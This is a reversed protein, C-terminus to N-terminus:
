RHARLRLTAEAIKRRHLRYSNWETDIVQPSVWDQGLVEFNDAGTGRIGFPGLEAIAEQLVQTAYAVDAQKGGKEIESELLAMARLDEVGDRVAEWRRSTVIGDGPYVLLYDHSTKEPYQWPDDPSTCYTWFGFGSLGRMKALWALGRYYELPPRHKALHECEYTWMMKSNNIMVDLRPDDKLLFGNRNPCWVDVLHAMRRIDSMDAREVPDTYMLVNPDAKRAVRAHAIYLDVLGPNLGPEDVPYYAFRDYGMGLTKLYAVLGELCADFAKEYAPTFMGHGEPGQLSGPANFLLFLSDVRDGLFDGLPSFDLDSEITGEENYRATPFYVGPVVIVNNGHALQDRWADEPFDKFLSNHVYGWSCLHPSTGEEIDLDVVEATVTVSVPNSRVAVPEFEIAGQYTGPPSEGAQISVFVQRTEGPALYITRAQNLKSLADDAYDDVETPVSLVELVEIQPGKGDGMRPASNVRVPTSRDELNMLNYALSEVENKYLRLGEAKSSDEKYTEEEIGRIHWWPNTPWVVLPPIRDGEALELIKEGKVLTAEISEMALETKRRLRIAEEERGSELNAMATKVSDLLDLLEYRSSEVEQLHVSKRELSTELDVIRPLAAELTKLQSSLDLMEPSGEPKDPTPKLPGKANPVPVAGTMGTDVRYSGWAIEPLQGTAGAQWTLCVMSGNDIPLVAALRGRYDISTAGGNTTGVPVRDLEKGEASLLIAQNFYGSALIEMKGDANFDAISAARRSRTGFDTRWLENGDADLCFCEGKLNICVTELKEDGLLNGVSITSDIGKEGIPTKWRSNGDNSFCQLYAENSGVLVEYNGDADLDALVPGSISDSGINTNWKPTGGQSLCVMEGDSRILVVEPYGDADLDGVAPPCHFGGGLPYAWKERGFRDLCRFNGAGDGALIEIWGDRDIDSAVITTQNWDLGAPFRYEWLEEGASSFCKLAGQRDIVLIELGDGPFLDAVTPANCYVGHTSVSWIPECDLDTVILKGSTTNFVLEVGPNSHVDAAIVSTDPIGARLEKKWLIEAARTPPCLLPLAILVLVASRHFNATVASVESRIQLASLEL